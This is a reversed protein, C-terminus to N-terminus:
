KKESTPVFNTMFEQYTKTTYAKDAFYKLISELQMPTLFNHMENLKKKEYSLYVEAPFQFNNQLLASALQHPNGPGTGVLKQGFFIMDEQSSADFKVPYFNENLLGAITPNKLVMDYVKCSQCWPTNIYIYMLKSDDKCLKTAEDMSYWNVVGSTDIESGGASIFKKIEDQYVNSYRYLFFKNFDQYSVSNMLDEAFFILLPEIDKVAYYGPVPNENGKRDLYLITPYSLGTTLLKKALEHTGKTGIPAKNVYEVGKYIITDHTEADFRVAYFNNNIYNAIGDNSFTTVMMKKCWGCWDTYVDVLMPRNQKEYLEQAEEFTYWKIPSGEILEQSFSYKGLIVFALIIIFRKM